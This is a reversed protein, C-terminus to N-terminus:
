EILGDFILILCDGIVVDEWYCFMDGCIVENFWIDLIFVWDEDIYVYEECVFWNLVEWVDFFGLVELVDVCDVYVLM